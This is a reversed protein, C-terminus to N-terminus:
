VTEALMFDIAKEINEPSGLLVVIDAQLFQYDPPPNVETVGGRVVVIVTAGTNKRLNLDKISKGICYANSEIRITETSASALMAAVESLADHHVDGTSLNEHLVKYGEARIRAVEEKIVPWAIGYVNLVRSFIELSTEFEEPIIQNAGAQYLAAIELMFRTRVIIHLRPNLERASAVTRRTAAADSIAVVLVRADEINASHLVEKRTSDGFKIPEERKRYHRVTDPNIELITYCIGAKRLVKSLNQGNLGYGAIITHGNLRVKGEETEEVFEKFEKPEKSFLGQLFYGISSSVKIAFPTLLMTVISAALFRQYDKDSLLKQELGLKAVIFSFEGIQALGLATIFSIRLHKAFLGVAVTATLTKVSLLGVVLLLVPLLNAWFSELSLLMGVSIFFLSNFVDKFPLIDAVIQHSYDSDSLVLGAIFAGLALSLGTQSTLWATGLSILVVSAVFVERSRLKVVQYLVAPIIRQGGILIAGVTLAAIALKEGLNAVSVVEKGSLIPVLLMMPVVCLDQFVLIGLSNRGYPTHAEARDAYTKLVIATSSLACLFGFFVGQEINRGLLISIAVVVVVTLIVQAAGCGFVIRRMQMIEKLSVEIGITFLLLVVGIEAMVEIAHIDEVLGLSSPGILIGTLMFGIIIPLRLKSCVIAVGISALMLVLLDKFIPLEHPM